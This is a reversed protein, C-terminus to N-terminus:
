RSRGMKVSGARDHGHDDGRGHDRDHRLRGIDGEDWETLRVLIRRARLANETGM